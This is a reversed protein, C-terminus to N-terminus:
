AGGAPPPRGAAQRGSPWMRVLTDDKQIFHHWLSAVVHVAILAYGLNGLIEHIEELAEALAESAAILVPLAMGAVEVVRGKANVMLYGSVPLLLLLAYLGLHALRSAREQWRPPPPTIPPAAGGLARVALRPLVLALVLLGALWHWHMLTTRLPDGKPVVDRWEMLAYAAAVIAFMLWHLGILPWGFRRGAAPPSHSRM